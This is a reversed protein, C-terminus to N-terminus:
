RFPFFGLGFVIELEGAQKQSKTNSLFLNGNFFFCVFLCHIYKQETASILSHHEFMTHTTM